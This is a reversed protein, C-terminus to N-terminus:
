CCGSDRMPASILSVKDVNPINQLQGVTERYQSATGIAHM